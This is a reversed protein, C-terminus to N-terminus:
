VEHLYRKYADVIAQTVVRADKANPNEYTLTLINLFARDNGSIRKVKLSDIIDQTPDKEGALTSLQNLKAEK